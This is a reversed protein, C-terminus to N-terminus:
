ALLKVGASKGPKPIDVLCARVSASFDVEVVSLLLLLTQRSTKVHEAEHPFPLWGLGSCYAERLVARQEKILRLSKLRSKAGKGFKM